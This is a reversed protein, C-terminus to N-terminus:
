LNFVTAVTTDLNDIDQRLHLLIEPIAASAAERAPARTTIGLSIAITRALWMPSTTRALAGVRRPGLKGGAALM